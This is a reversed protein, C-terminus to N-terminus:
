SSRSESIPAAPVAAVAKASDSNQTKAVKKTQLQYLFEDPIESCTIRTDFWICGKCTRVMVDVQAATTGAPWCIYNADLGVNYWLRCPKNDAATFETLDIECPTVGIIRDKQTAVNEILSGPEPSGEPAIILSGKPYFVGPTLLPEIYKVHDLCTFPGAQDIVTKVGNYQEWNRHTM